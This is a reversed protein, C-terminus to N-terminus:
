SEQENLLILLHDVIDVKTKAMQSANIILSHAIPQLNQQYDNHECSSQLLRITVFTVIKHIHESTAMKGQSLSM